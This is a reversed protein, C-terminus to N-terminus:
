SRTRRTRARKKTGPRPRRYIVVAVTILAAAGLAIVASLRLRSDSQTALPATPTDLARRAEDLEPLDPDAEDYNALLERYRARSADTEGLAAHARAAGLVSLSRNPNRRLAHEFPEIAERPRGAELLVEGLLEPAPKVPEPLGLPPPLKLEARAAAQLIEVAPGTRGAGLEILAAVEREMIAIAPRLDGERESTARSALGQRAREALDPDRLRAASVGIAFLDDVNAFNRERGMTEWQRTEIAYRARMSALDSLLPVLGTAKVVPELEDITQRAARYRGRQLLEYELWGLAHYNRAEPGRRKRAIWASSADFAARDSAAADRWMGLQLFIHSPMHLAHSSGRAIDDGAALRRAAALGLSAHAPDDYNHLLYHLAGPHDPQSKLVANLIESVHKQVESGALGATRGEHADVHGILSRSMTGLLALAYFSAVDPDEAAQAYARAMADAYRRHRTAPDGDGFLIEVGAILAKETATGAKSARAAPSQGLRALARRGAAIDEKRWLTQNYTMAEGWYAMAFGPDLRQAELFAENADEYEFLHLATLGRAYFLRADPPQATALATATWSLVCAVAIRIARVRWSKKTM